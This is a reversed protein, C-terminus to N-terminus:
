GGTIGMGLIAVGPCEAIAGVKLGLKGAMLNINELVVNYIEMKRAPTIIENDV